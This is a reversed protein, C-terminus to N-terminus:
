GASFSSTTATRPPAPRTLSRKQTKGDGAGCWGPGYHRRSRGGDSSCPKSVEYACFFALAVFHLGPLRPSFPVLSHRRCAFQRAKVEGCACDVVRATDAETTPRFHRTRRRMM